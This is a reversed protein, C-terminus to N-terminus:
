LLKNEASVKVMCEPCIGHSFQANSHSGVYYELKEWAGKDNRIEKCYACIPIIGELTKIESLLRELKGVTGALELEATDREKIYQRANRALFISIFGITTLVLTMGISFLSIASQVAADSAQKRQVLLQEEEAVMDQAITRIENMLQKGRGTLVRETAEVRNGSQHLDITDALEDLKRSVLIGIKFIRDQQTANDITLNKVALLQNSIAATGNKYPELYAADNTLLYGRQGTEAGDLNALVLAIQTEVENTHAVWFSTEILQQTLRYCGLGAIALFLICAAFGLSIKRQIDM